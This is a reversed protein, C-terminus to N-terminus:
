LRFPFFGNSFMITAPRRSDSTILTISGGQWLLLSTYPCISFLRVLQTSVEIRSLVLIRDDSNVLRGVSFSLLHSELLYRHCDVELGVRGAPCDPMGHSPSAAAHYTGSQTSAVPFIASPLRALCHGCVLMQFGIRGSNPRVEIDQLAHNLPHSLVAARAFHPADREDRCDEHQHSAGPSGCCASIARAGATSNKTSSARSDRGLSPRGCNTCRRRRFLVDPVPM